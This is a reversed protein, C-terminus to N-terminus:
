GNVEGQLDQPLGFDWPIESPVHSPIPSQIEPSDSLDLPTTRRTGVFGYNEELWLRLNAPSGEELEDFMTESYFMAVGTGKIYLDHNAPFLYRALLYDRYAEALNGVDRMHRGRSGLFAGLMEHPTLARLDSGTSVAKRTLNFYKILYDDPDSKFGRGPTFGVAAAEINHTVNGDDYRAIFHGRVCALSVPWGLRWCIGVFLTAMNGCTGRRTDIIGNLFLDSPNTYQITKLDRQEEIYAIQAKTELFWCVAGLRFFNIDNKWDQPTLRFERELRPLVRRVGEAWGDVIQVRSPIDLGALSPISKAVLLNMVVPDVRAIEEPTYGVFRHYEHM